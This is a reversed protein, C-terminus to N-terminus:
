DHQEEHDEPLADAPSAYAYQLKGERNMNQMVPFDTNAPFPLLWRKKKPTRQCDKSADHTEPKRYHQQEERLLCDHVKPLLRTADSRLGVFQRASSLPQM